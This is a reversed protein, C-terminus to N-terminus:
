FTFEVEVSPFFSLQDAYHTLAVPVARWCLNLLEPTEESFKRVGSCGTVRTWSEKLQSETMLFRFGDSTM